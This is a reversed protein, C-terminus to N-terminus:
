KEDQFNNESEKYIPLKTKFEKEEQTKLLNEIEMVEATSLLKIKNKESM